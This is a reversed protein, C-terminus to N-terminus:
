VLSVAEAEVHLRLQLNRQQKKLPTILFEVLMGKAWMEAVQVYAFVCAHTKVHVASEHLLNDQM